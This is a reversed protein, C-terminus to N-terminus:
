RSLTYRNNCVALVFVNMDGRIDKDDLNNKDVSAAEILLDLLSLFHETM